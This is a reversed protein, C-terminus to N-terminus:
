VRFHSMFMTLAEPRLLITIVLGTLAGGLHAEHAVGGRLDDRMAYMSYAIYFVAYLFAPIAIPIMMVYIRALPDFLCFSLVVGSIAGSAGLSRYNRQERKLLLTLISSGLEAGLYLVLFGPSGLIMEVAPGFFFLTITNFLFHLPDAHVFGSTIMRYWQGRRLIRDVNFELRDTLDNDVYFAYGSVLINIFLMVYTVPTLLMEMSSM